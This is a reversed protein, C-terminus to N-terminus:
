KKLPRLATATVGRADKVNLFYDKAEAPIEASVTDGSIKAPKSKWRRKPEPVGQGDLCWWFEGSVPKVAARFKASAVGNKLVMEGMEPLAPTGKLVSDIFIEAEPRLGRTHSHGFRGPVSRYAKSPLYSSRCWSTWEYATDDPRNVFLFPCRVDPLVRAPDFLDFWKDPASRVTDRSERLFGCGYISVAAKYRPDDAAAFCTLYGGWSIGYIATKEPDVEPLSRLISHANRIAVIGQHTWSDGPTKIDRPFYPFNPGGNPLQNRVKKHGEWRVIPRGGATDVALVAYGRQTWKEVWQLFATGGGGHVLIVGPLKGSFKEPLGIWAFVETKKGCFDDGRFLIQRVNAPVPFDFTFNSERYEPVAEGGALSFAAASLLLVIIKGFQHKM